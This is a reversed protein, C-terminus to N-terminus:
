NLGRTKLGKIADLIEDPNFIRGSVLPFSIVKVKSGIVREAEHCLQGMNLEPVLLYKVSAPLELLSQEPFPWLTVPRLYGAKFGQRRATRVAALAARATCGYSFVVTEADELMEQQVQQLKLRRNEIKGCLRQILSGVKVPDTTPFGMHDHYLGTVHLQYGEGFRGMPPIERNAVADYYGEKSVDPLARLLPVGEVDDPLTVTEKLHAIAEDMLLIVPIRLEEAIEFAEMTLEYVEGVGSPSLVVVPHDGHTGWRAQMVDGQSPYTAIGTSPGVRQVNVIVCPVEAMAAFGISEQMLSFGPGSTCTMSKAGALSAGIVAALSGIEDEMQVAIGGEQPLRVALIELIESSPTIPYGAFFRMGAHIAGLACAENGQVLM